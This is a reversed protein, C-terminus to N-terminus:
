PEAFGRANALSPIAARATTAAEPDIDAFLVGPKDHDFAAVVEGWPGVVMSRGWTGRGDVHQGGQAPALVFSGTEIARARLLVEWHAEGTTRTFASPVSMAVAGAKALARYLSPFRLDYCITLGLLGFATQALVARDGPAYVTSERHKEGSPLDVDFMHIKDYRAQVTGDAGIMLSRNAFGGEKRRVLASGILVAVKFEAALRQVGQVFPDDEAEVLAALLKDRDRLLINSGEPTLILKAGGTAAKRILPTVQELSAAQTNPTRLQLLAIRATV